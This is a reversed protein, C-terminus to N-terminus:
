AHTSPPKLEIECPDHHGCWSGAAGVAECSGVADEGRARSPGYDGAQAGPGHAVKRIVMEASFGLPGSLARNGVPDEAVNGSPTNRTQDVPKGLLGGGGPFHLSSREPLPTSAGVARHGPLSVTGTGGPCLHRPPGTVRLRCRRDRQHGAPSPWPCLLTPLLPSAAGRTGLSAASFTSLQRKPLFWWVRLLFALLTQVSKGWLLAMLM